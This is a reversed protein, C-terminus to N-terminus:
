CGISYWTKLGGAVKPVHELAHSLGILPALATRCLREVPWTAIVDLDRVAGATFTTGQPLFLAVADHIGTENLDIMAAFNHGNVVGKIARAAAERLRSLFEEGPLGSGGDAQFLVQLDKRTWPTLRATTRVWDPNVLVDNTAVRLEITNGSRSWVAAFLGVPQIAPAGFQSGVDLPWGLAVGNEQSDRRIMAERFASPLDDTRIQVIVEENTDSFLSGEGALLQFTEGHRESTQTLAGRPDYQLASKYYRLLAHPDFKTESEDQNDDIQADVVLPRTVFSARTAILQETQSDTYHDPHRAPSSSRHAPRHMARWRNDSGLSVLGNAQLEALERRIAERRAVDFAIDLLAM